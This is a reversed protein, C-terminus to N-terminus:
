SRVRRLKDIQNYIVPIVILTMLTSTVLGGIVAIALPTRLSAGEGIGFSLPLLALITTITTMFIPRIRDQGALLIAERKEVGKKRLTNIYDVFIIADNVAIGALMIIGIYGMLSFPIRMFYFIFVAGIGAMPLSFMITFPHVFSEFLSALVMYVIVISLILAFKLNRFSEQREREKGGLSIKYDKLLVIDKINNEVRQIVKSYKYGPSLGAFVKGVRVQEDRTIEKPGTVIEIDALNKLYLLAGGSTEIRINELESLRTRPYEVRINRDEGDLRMETVSEGRLKGRVIDAIQQVNLGFSGAVLRNLAINVEPRGEDFSTQVNFADEMGRLKEAVQNGLEELIDLEPGKVEIVIDGESSGLTQKLATEEFTFETETDPIDKFAPEIWEIFQYIPVKNEADRDLTVHIVAMNPGFQEGELYNSDEGKGIETYISKVRGVSYSKIIEEGWKVVNETRYIRTGEPLRLTIGFSGEESKPIFESGVVPILLLAAVLLVVAPIIIRFPKDIAKSLLNWYFESRKKEKKKVVRGKLFRSAAAPILLFAVVLSSLLSFAVTYAQEKFLEGGVGRVFVIPLFVIVTTLTAAFIATGVENTGFVSAEKGDKGLERHRFINEVVVIANDVLMGAGLALGGLTMINMTLGSFYMLNFTAVISIPISISVIFTSWINKLFFFLVIIALIIGYLAAQQVETIAGTIFQAQEKVITLEVEPLDRKLDTLLKRVENSVKVTNSKAEKYISIGVGENENHRVISEIESDEFTLDAVEKLYIPVESGSATETNESGTNSTKYGVVLERIDELDMFRGIGKVIYVKENDEIRGGSADINTSSIKSSVDSASLNYAKLKYPKLLVKIERNRGGNVNAKAVGELRELKRKVVNEATRRLEDLDGSEKSTLCISMIPAAQPDFKTVTIRKIERDGQLRGVTKQVDLLSFDMDTDWFFEVTILAQSVRSVSSVRKVRSITSLEAELNKVYKQEMEFPPKEESEISVVIKPNSVDPLLDIGLKNFSITGLLLVALFIMVVTVPYRVSFQPVNM